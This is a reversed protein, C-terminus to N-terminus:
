LHEAISKVDAILYHKEPKGCHVSIPKRLSRANSEIVTTYMDMEESYITYADYIRSQIFWLKDRESANKMYERQYENLNGTHNKVWDILTKEDDELHCVNWDIFVKQKIEAMM